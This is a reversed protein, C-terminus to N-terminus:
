STQLQAMKKLHSSTSSSTMESKKTLADNSPTLGKPWWAGGRNRPAKSPRLVTTIVSEHINSTLRSKERGREAQRGSRDSEIQLGTMKAFIHKRSKSAQKSAQKSGQRLGHLFSIYGQLGRMRGREKDGSLYTQLRPAAEASQGWM